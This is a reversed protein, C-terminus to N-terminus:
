SPSNGPGGATSGSHPPAAVPEDVAFHREFLSNAVLALGVIAIFGGIGLGADGEGSAYTLLVMLGIGIGILTVGSSRYRHGRRDYRWSRGAGLTQEFRGPDVEPPPVLGKEIMAIRQRIELERIRTQSYVKLAVILFAGAIAVIPILIAVVNAMQDGWLM